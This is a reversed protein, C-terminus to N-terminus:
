VLRFFCSRCSAIPRYPTQTKPTKLRAKRRFLPSTLGRSYQASSAGISVACINETQSERTRVCTSIPSQFRECSRPSPGFLSDIHQVFLRTPGNKSKAPLTVIKPM